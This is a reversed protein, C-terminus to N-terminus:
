AAAPSVKMRTEAVLATLKQLGTEECLVDLPRKGKLGENKMHLWETFQQINHFYQLVSTRLVAIKDPLRKELAAWHRRIACPLMYGLILGLGGYLVVTFVYYVFPADNGAILKVSLLAVGAMIGGQLSGWILRESRLRDDARDIAYATMMGCCAPVFSWLAYSRFYRFILEASSLKTPSPPASSAAPATEALGSILQGVNLVLYFALSVIAGKAILKIIAVAHPSGTESHYKDSGILRARLRLATGTAVLHVILIIFLLWLVQNTETPIGSNHAADQLTSAAILWGAATRPSGSRPVESHSGM